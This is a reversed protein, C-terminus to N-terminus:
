FTHTPASCGIASSYSRDPTQWALMQRATMNLLIYVALLFPWFCCCSFSLLRSFSTNNGAVSYKKSSKTTTLYSFWCIAQQVLSIRLPSELIRYIQLHTQTRVQMHPLTTTCLHLQLKWGSSVWKELWPHKQASKIANCELSLTGFLLRELARLADFRNVCICQAQILTHTHTRTVPRTVTHTLSHKLSHTVSEIRILYPNTTCEIALTTRPPRWNGAAASPQAFAFSSKANEALFSQVQWPWPICCHSLCSMPWKPMQVCNRIQQPLCQRAHWVSPLDQWLRRWVIYVCVCM